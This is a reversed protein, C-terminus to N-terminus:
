LMRQPGLICHRVGVRAPGSRGQTSGVSHILSYLKVLARRFRLRCLPRLAEEELM